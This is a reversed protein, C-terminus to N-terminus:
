WSFFLAARDKSVDDRALVNVRALTAPIGRSRRRLHPYVFRLADRREVHSLRLVVVVIVAVVVVVAMVVVVVVVDTKEEAHTNTHLQTFGHDEWLSRYLSGREFYSEHRSRGM